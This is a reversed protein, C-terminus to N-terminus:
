MSTTETSGRSLQVLGGNAASTRSPFSYPRPEQSMFPPIADITSAASTSADLPTASAPSRTTAVFVSSSDDPAPPVASTSRPSRASAPM